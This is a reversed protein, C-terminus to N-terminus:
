ICEPFLRKYAMYHGSHPTLGVHEIMAALKYRSEINNSEALENTPVIESLDFEIPFDVKTSNLVENGMPSYVVRNIHVCLISPPKVIQM